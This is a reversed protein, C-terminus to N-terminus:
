FCVIQYIKVNNTYFKNMDRYHRINVCMCFPTYTIDRYQRIKVCALFLNQIHTSTHIFIIIYIKKKLCLLTVFFFNVTLVVQLYIMALPNPANGLM